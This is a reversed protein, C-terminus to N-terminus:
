YVSKQGFDLYSPVEVDPIPLPFNSFSAQGGSPIAPNYRCVGGWTGVWVNGSRDILINSVRDHCLGEKKTYNTFTKGDYKSLGFHTGFWLNGEKDEVISAVTNGALGDDISFYTLSKGDYRAVGKSMTGFWLNGKSDEFIEVVCKAIQAGTKPTVALEFSNNEIVKSNSPESCATIFVIIFLLLCLRTSLYANKM